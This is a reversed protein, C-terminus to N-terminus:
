ANYIIFDDTEMAGELGSLQAQDLGAEIPFEIQAVAKMLLEHAEDETLKRDTLFEITLKNQQMM